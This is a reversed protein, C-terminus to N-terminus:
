TTEEDQPMETVSDGWELKRCVRYFEPEKGKSVKRMHLGDAACYEFHLLRKGYVPHRLIRADYPLGPQRSIALYTFKEDEYPLEGSKIQRQLRIRAIRRSFHCWNGETMPCANEHPCPALIHSDGLAVFLDRIRRLVEFREPTGPEIVLLVGSTMKWLRNIVEILNGPPIEGIMYSAIVLDFQALPEIARIDAHRWDASALAPAAAHAALREGAAIMHREQEYLVIRGIAPWKEAVAWAATGPGAGADLLSSPTWDPRCAAMSDLAGAVAAYTAPMRYAAYAGASEEDPIYRVGAPNGSNRYSASLVASKESLTRLPRDQSLEEIATKLRDPLDM